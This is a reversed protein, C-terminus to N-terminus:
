ESKWKIEQTVEEESLLKQDKIKGRGVTLNYSM